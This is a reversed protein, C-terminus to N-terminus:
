WGLEFGVLFTEVGNKATVTLGTTVTSNAGIGIHVEVYTGMWGFIGTMGTADENDGDGRDLVGATDATTHFFNYVDFSFLGGCCSDQDCSLGFMENPYAYVAYPGLADPCDEDSETIGTDVRFSCYSRTTISGTPTFYHSYEAGESFYSAGPYYPWFPNQPSGSYSMWARDFIHGWNFTCGGIDCAFTLADLQIGDFYNEYMKVSLYPTFCVADGGVLQFYYGINKEAVTYTIGMGWIKLWPIGLDIDKVVINLFDFGTACDFMAMGTITACCIPFEVMATLYSFVVDCGTQIPALGGLFWRGDWIYNCPQWSWDSVGGYVGYLWVSYLTPYLNWTVELGIRVDGATGIGGLAFGSAVVGTAATQCDNTTIGAWYTDAIAFAAFVDVGAISIEAVNEFTLFAPLTPDFALLSWASFAGLSGYAEFWQGVLGASSLLSASEFTWGGILYQMDLFSYFGALGIDTENVDIGLYTDWEGAFTQASGAFALGIVVLLSLVLARKM